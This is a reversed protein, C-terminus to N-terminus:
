KLYTKISTKTSILLDLVVLYAALPPMTNIIIFGHMRLLNFARRSYYVAYKTPYPPAGVTCQM